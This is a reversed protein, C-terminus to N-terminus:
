QTISLVRSSRVSVSRVEFESVGCGDRKKKEGSRLRMKSSREVDLEPLEELDHRRQRGLASKLPSAAGVRRRGRIAQEEREELVSRDLRRCRKVFADDNTSFVIRSVHAVLACVSWLVMLIFDWCTGRRVVYCCRTESGGVMAM